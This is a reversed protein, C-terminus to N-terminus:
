RPSAPAARPRAADREDDDVRGALREVVRRRDARRVPVAAQGRGPVQEREAVAPDAHDAPRLPDQAAPGAEVAVPRRHVLGAHRDVRVRILWPLNWTSSPISRPGPGAARQRIPRRRDEGAVVELREADVLGGALRPQVDRLVEADDAEVVQRDGLPDARRQRRDALREDSIAAAAASSTRAIARPSSGAWVRTSSAVSSMTRSLVAGGLRQGRAAPAVPVPQCRPEDADVPRVPKMLPRFTAAM